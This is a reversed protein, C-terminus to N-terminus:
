QLLLKNEILYILTKAIANVFNPDFISHQFLLSPMFTFKDNPDITDCDYNISYNEIPTDKPVILIKRIILRFSNFPANEKITIRHPLVEMLESATFASIYEYDDTTSQGYLSLKWEPAFYTSGKEPILRKYWFSSEQKINLEKLQQAFELSCVQDKLM